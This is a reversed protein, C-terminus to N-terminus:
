EKKSGNALAQHGARGDADASASAKGKTSNDAATGFACVVYSRAEIVFRVVKLIQASHGRLEEM